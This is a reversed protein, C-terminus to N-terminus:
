GQKQDGEVELPEPPVPASSRAGERPDELFFFAFLLASILLVMSAVVMCLAGVAGALSASGPGLVGPLEQGDIVTFVKGEWIKAGVYGQAAGIAIVIMCPLVVVGNFCGLFHDLDHPINRMALVPLAIFAGGVLGIEQSTHPSLTTFGPIGLSSLLTHGLRLFLLGSSISLSFSVFLLLPLNTITPM